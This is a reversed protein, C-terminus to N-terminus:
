TGEAATRSYAWIGGMMLVILLFSLASGLPWNDAMMFQSMIVKGIMETDTGGLLEPTVFDGVCPIFTLVAGALVGPLSLPWVVRVFRWFPSAGLDAAAEMLARDMKELSVYLPLTMFPLFGYTLGVVVASPTNLLQLPAHTLGMAMLGENIVGHSRLIVIWAYTRILYSTWFPLMVLMLLTSKWRGGYMAIAYALPYGLLLCLLTCLGAYRVSRVFVEVVDWQLATRYADLNFTHVLTGEGTRAAFSDALVTLLPLLYFTVMYVAMPAMLLYPWWSRRM